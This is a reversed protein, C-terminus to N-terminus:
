ILYLKLLHKQEVVVKHAKPLEGGDKYKDLIQYTKPDVLYNNEINFPKGGVLGLMELNELYKRPKPEGQLAQTYVQSPVLRTEGRKEFPKLDWLDRQTFLLGRPDESIDWRYGGMVGYNDWDWVSGTNSDIPKAHREPVWEPYYQQSEVRELIEKIAEPSYSRPDNLRLMKRYDRTLGVLPSEIFSTSLTGRSVPDPPNDMYYKAKLDNHLKMMYVPDFQIGLMRYTNDGIQELTNYEQPLGLGTAWADLRRRGLNELKALHKTSFLKMKEKVPLKNYKDFSLGSYNTKLWEDTPEPIGTLRLSEGVRFPRTSNSIANLYTERPFNKIKRTINYSAPNIGKYL